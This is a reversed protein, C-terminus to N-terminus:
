DDRRHKYNSGIVVDGNSFKTVETAKYVGDIFDESNVIFAEADQPLKQLKRILQAVTM